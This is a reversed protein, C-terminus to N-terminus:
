PSPSTAKQLMLADQVRKALDNLLVLVSEVYQYSLKIPRGVRGKYGTARIFKRDVIGGRHVILHRYALVEAFANLNKPNKLPNRRGVLRGIHSRLNKPDNFKYSSAVVKGIALGLNRGSELIAEYELNSHLETTFRKQMFVNKSLVEETVDRVYVEFATVATVLAQELLVNEVALMLQELDKKLREFLEANEALWKEGKAELEKEPIGAFCAEFKPILEREIVPGLEKEVMDQLNAYHGLGFSSLMDGIFQSLKGISEKGGTRILDDAYFQMKLLGWSKNM